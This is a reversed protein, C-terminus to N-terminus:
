RVGRAKFFNACERTDEIPDNPPRDMEIVGVEVGVEACAALTSTWDVEGDGAVVHINARSPALDKLHVLSARSGVERLFEAPDEGANRAWGLDVEFSVYEPDTEAVLKRLGQEAGFEFDHNHYALRLGEAALRKGLGDFTKALDSWNRRDEGVYPVIVWENDFLRAEDVAAGFDKELMEIGVHAGSVLLGQERLAEAFDAPPRGYTGALEVYELGMSRVAALTGELDKAIADRVTYLQLSLRM